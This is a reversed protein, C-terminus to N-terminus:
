FVMELQRPDVKRGSLKSAIVELKGPNASTKRAKAPKVAPEPASPCPLVEISGGLPTLM